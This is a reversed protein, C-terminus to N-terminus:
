EMTHNILGLFYCCDTSHPYLGIPPPTNWSVINSSSFYLIINVYVTRDSCTGSHTARAHVSDKNMRRPLQLYVLDGTAQSPPALHLPCTEAGCLEVHALCASSWLIGAEKTHCMLCLQVSSPDTLVALM